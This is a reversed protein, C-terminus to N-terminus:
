GLGITLFYLSSLLWPRTKLLFTSFSCLKLKFICSSMSGNPVKFINPIIDKKIQATPWYSNMQKELISDIEKPLICYFGVKGEWAVIEFSIENQFGFFRNEFNGEYLNGLSAFFQDAFGIIERFDKPTENQKPLIQKPISIEYITFSKVRSLEHKLKNARFLMYIFYGMVM